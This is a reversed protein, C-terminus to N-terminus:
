RRMTPRAISGHLLGALAGRAPLTGAAIVSVQARGGGKAHWGTGADRIRRPKKRQLLNAHGM